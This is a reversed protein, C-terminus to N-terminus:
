PAPNGTITEYTDLYEPRREMALAREILDLAEIDEGTEHLVHALNNM